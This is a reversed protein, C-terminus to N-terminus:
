GFLVGVEIKRVAVVVVGVEEVAIRGGVVVVMGELGMWRGLCGIGGRAVRGRPVLGRLRGVVLGVVQQM